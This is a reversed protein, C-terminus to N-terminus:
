IYIIMLWYRISSGGLDSFNQIGVDNDHIYNNRIIINSLATNNVYDVIMIGRPNSGNIGNKLEFGDIVIYSKRIGFCDNTDTADVIPRGTGPWAKYTIYNGATGSNTKICVVAKEGSMGTCTSAGGNGSYTIGGKVNM